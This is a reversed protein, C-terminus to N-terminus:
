IKYIIRKDTVIIDVMLNRIDVPIPATIHEELAVSINRITIPFKPVFKDYGQGFGIRGGKEDFAAGPIIAIDIHRLPVSKCKLVNPILFGKKDNILDTKLNEVKLLKLTRKRHHFIPIVVTKNKSFCYEIISTTDFERGNSVYLLVAKSEMFNALQFLREECSKKKINVTEKSLTNFKAKVADIIENKRNINEMVTRWRKCSLNQVKLPKTQKIILILVMQCM